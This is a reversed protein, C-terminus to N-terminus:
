KLIILQLDDVLDPYFGDFVTSNWYKAIKVNTNYTLIEKYITANEIDSMNNNISIQLADYQEEATLWKLNNCIGFAVGIFITTILIAILPIYFLDYDLDCNCFKKIVLYTIFPLVILLIIWVIM